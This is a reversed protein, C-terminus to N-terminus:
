NAHAERDWRDLMEFFSILQQISYDDFSGSPVADLAFAEREVGPISSTGLAERQSELTSSREVGRGSKPQSPSTCSPRNLSAGSKRDTTIPLTPERLGPDSHDVSLGSKTQVADWRGSKNRGDM